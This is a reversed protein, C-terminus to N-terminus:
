DEPVALPMLSLGPPSNLDGWGYFRGDRTAVIGFYGGHYVEVAGPVEGLLRPTREYEHQVMPRLVSRSGVVLVRNDVLLAAGSDLPGTADFHSIEGSLPYHVFNSVRDRAFSLPPDSLFNTPSSGRCWLRHMTDIGCLLPASYGSTTPENDAYSVVFLKRLSAPTSVAIARSSFILSRDSMIGSNAYVFDSSRDVRLGWCLVANDHTIVCASGSDVAVFQVRPLALVRPQTWQESLGSNLLLGSGGTGFAFLRGGATLVFRVSPTCFLQVADAIPEISGVEIWRQSNEQKFEHVRGESDLMAIDFVGGAATNTCWDVPAAVPARTWHLRGPSEGAFGCYVSGRRNRICFDNNGGSGIMILRPRAAVAAMESLPPSEPATKAGCNLLVACCAILAVSASCRMRM